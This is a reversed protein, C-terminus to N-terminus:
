SSETIISINLATTTSTSSSMTKRFYLDWSTPFHMILALSQETESVLKRQLVRITPDM